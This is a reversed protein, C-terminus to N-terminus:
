NITAPPHALLDESTVSTAALAGVRAAILFVAVAAYLHLDLFKRTVLCLRGMAPILRL